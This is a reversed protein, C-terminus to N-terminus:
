PTTKVGPCDRQAGLRASFTGPPPCALFFAHADDYFKGTGYPDVVTIACAGPSGGGIQGSPTGEPPDCRGGNHIQWGDFYSNAGHNATVTIKEGPSAYFFIDGIAPNGYAPPPAFSSVTRGAPDITMTGSANEDTTFWVGLDVAVKGKPASCNGFFADKAQCGLLKATVQQDTQPQQEDALSQGGFKGQEQQAAAAPTDDTIQGEAQAAANGVTGSGGLLKGYVDKIVSQSFPSPAGSNGRPPGLSDVNPGVSTIVRDSVGYLSKMFNGSGCAEVVTTVKVGPYLRKATTIVDRVDKATIVKTKWTHGLLNTPFSTTKTALSIYPGPQTGGFTDNLWGWFRDRLNKPWTTEFPPPTLQHGNAYILVDPTGENYADRIAALLSAADDAKIVPRGTAANAFRAWAAFDINAQPDGFDGIEIIRSTPAPPGAAAHAVLTGLGRPDTARGRAPAYPVWPHGNILPWEAMGRESVIRGNHADLLLMVAPHPLMTGPELDAWFAWVRHGIRRRNVPTLFTTQGHSAVIRTRGAELGGPGAEGIVTSAPLPRSWRYAIGSHRLTRGLDRDAIATARAATLDRPQHRKSRAQAGPVGITLAAALLIPGLARLTRWPLTM